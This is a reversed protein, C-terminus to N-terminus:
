SLGMIVSDQIPPILNLRTRIKDYIGEIYATATTTDVLAVAYTELGKQTRSACGNFFRDLGPPHKSSKPLFSGHCRHTSLKAIGHSNLAM